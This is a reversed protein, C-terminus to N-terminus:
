LIAYRLGYIEIVRNGLKMYKRKKEPATSTGFLGKAAITPPDLTEVLIETMSAISELTFFLTVFISMKKLLSLAICLLHSLFYLSHSHVQNSLVTCQCKIVYM